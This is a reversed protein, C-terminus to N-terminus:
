LYLVFHMEFHCIIYQWPVTFSNEELLRMFITNFHLIECHSNFVLVCKSLDKDNSKGSLFFGMIMQSRYVRKCDPNLFVKETCVSAASIITIFILDHLLFTVLLFHRILSFSLLMACVPAYLLSPLLSSLLVAYPYFYKSLLFLLIAGLCFSSPIWFLLIPSTSIQGRIQFM